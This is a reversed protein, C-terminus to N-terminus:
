KREEYWRREKVKETRTVVSEKSLVVVVVMEGLFTCCSDVRGVMMVLCDKKDEM